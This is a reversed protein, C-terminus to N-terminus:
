KKAFSIRMKHSSTISFGQLTDKAQGAQYEDGFEVFAIGRKGPILRAEVFGESQQFLMQLVTANTQEPLNEVFLIANPPNDEVEDEATNMAEEKEETEAAVAAQTEMEASSSPAGSITSSSKAEVRVKKARPKYTGEIKCITDSKELAFRVRMEKGFFRFGDLGRVARTASDLKDFVVWAQGRLRRSKACHVEIIHGFQSFVLYLNTLLEPKKIKDNLNTVYV